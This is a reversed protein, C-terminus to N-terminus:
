SAARGKNVVAGRAEEMVVSGYRFRPTRYPGLHLRFRDRSLMRIITAEATCAELRGVGGSALPERRPPSSQPRPVLQARWM